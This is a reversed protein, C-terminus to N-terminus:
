SQLLIAGCADGSLITKPKPIVEELKPIGESCACYFPPEGTVNRTKRVAHIPETDTVNKPCFTIEFYGETGFSSYVPHFLNNWATDCIWYADNCQVSTCVTEPHIGGPKGNTDFLKIQVGVNFGKVLSIDWWLAKPDLFNLEVSTRSGFNLSPYGQKSVWIAPNTHSLSSCLSGNRCEDPLSLSHPGYYVELDDGCYNYVTLSRNLSSVDTLSTDVCDGCVASIFFVFIIYVYMTTINM